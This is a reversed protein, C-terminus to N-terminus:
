AAPHLSRAIQVMTALEFGPGSLSYYVGGQVWELLHPEPSWRGLAGGVAVAVQGAGTAPPLTHGAGEYLRLGVGDLEAAPRLYALTLGETAPTRITQAAVARYGAPLYSPVLPTFRVSGIAQAPSLGDEVVQGASRHVRWAAPEPLGRVPLSGAVRLLTAPPLNSVVLFEGASTHLAVRRLETGTAPEYYAVGGGSPPALPQAFPGVGFLQAQDWGTVHTVTLWTLGRAYALITQRYTRSPGPAFSGLRWPRLTATDAPAWPTPRAGGVAADSFGEDQPDPGPRVAFLLAPPLATSLSRVTASFVPGGPPEPPLGQQAAWASREAGQLPFVEYRLPFWTGRDLWVVVRDEPFFPRWSGLFQLYQFLSAADQYAVEVAVSARGGVDGSGAVTLHDAAALVTMPVIIDTPMASVADFPARDIVSRVVPAARTCAPLEAQPCPDPGSARWTRGDTVLSLDNRPWAPSPYVTTDHVQVSFREPARFAVEALFTRKPVARTWHLETIDFTARYGDLNVAAGVLRHPIEQALAATNTRRPQVLGGATLVFGVVLGAALALGMATRARMGHAGTGAPRPKTRISRSSRRLEAAEAPLYAEERVRAMIAPVLNPVPPAPEFRAAERIRWAGGRFDSCAPGGQVHREVAAPLLDVDDM